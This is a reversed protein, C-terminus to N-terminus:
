PIMWVPSRSGNPDDWDAGTFTLSSKDVTAEGNDNSSVLIVVDSVPQADLQVSFTDTSGDEFVLTYGDTENVTFGAADDDTITGTATDSDTIAPDTADLSVTFTETGEILADDLTDVTFSHTESATGTFSLAAVVNDYDEPSVLLSAGGTASGGGLTVNVNFGASVAFDLSVTFTLGGGEAVSMDEVTVSAADDDTITGVATDSDNVLLNSASLSVDFTENAEPIGDDLTAVTFSHQEGANGTFSLQVTQSDYDEPSTLPLDGATANGGAFSVDVTFPGEVANDLTVTFSIADGEDASASEVTVAASNSDTVTVSDAGNGHDAATATLTVDQDGDVVGDDVPDVSFSVQPMDAMGFVYGPISVVASHSLESSDSALNVTLEEAFLQFDFDLEADAEALADVGATRGEVMALFRYTGPTLTYTGAAVTIDSTGGVNLDNELESFFLPIGLGPGSLEMFALAEAGDATATVSGNLSFTHTTALDFFIDFVSSDVIPELADSDPYLTAFATGDFGLSDIASQTGVEHLVTGPDGPDERVIDAPDFAGFTNDFVSEVSGSDSASIGRNVHSVTLGAAPRSVTATTGAGQESLSSPPIDVILDSIVDDDVVAVSDVGDVYTAASATITADVTADDSANDLVEIGVTVSSDGNPIDISAPLSLKTQQDNLLDVTLLGSTSGIRSVEVFLEGTGASELVASADDGFSDVIRVGLVADDDVVDLVGSDSAHVATSDTATITVSQIQDAVGDQVAAIPFTAFTNGNLITVSAPVTAESTDDSTLNVVLDGTAPTNRTVTGLAAAAGAGESVSPPSISLTLEPAESVERIAVGGLSVDLTFPAPAVDIVIEGSAGVTVVKAYSSLPLSNSGVQDNIFLDSNNFNQPFSIASGDATITVDQQISQYFGELGFVYVEYDAGDTLGSWTLTTTNVGAFVQGDLGALSSTHTPLTSATIVAAAGTVGGGAGTITLDYPTANGDEDTLSAVSAPTSATGISAWNGPVSASTEDFDVGVLAALLNRHELNEVMLQSRLKRRSDRRRSKKGVAGLLSAGFRSSARLGLSKRSSRM